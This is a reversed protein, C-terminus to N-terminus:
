SDIEIVYVTAPMRDRSDSQFLRVGTVVFRGPFAFEYQLSTEGIRPGLPAALMLTGDAPSAIKGDTLNAIAAGMYRTSWVNCYPAINVEKAAPTSVGVLLCLCLLTQRGVSNWHRWFPAQGGTSTAM